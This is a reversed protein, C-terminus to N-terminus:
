NLVFDCNVRLDIENHSVFVVAVDSTKMVQSFFAVAAKAASTDLNSTFEDLCLLRVDSMIAVSIAVAQRQGGSLEGCFSHIRDELGLEFKSLLEKIREDAAARTQDGGFARALESITLDRALLDGAFQNLYVKKLGRQEQIRGSTPELEGCIVKLLTSKGSGNRGSVRVIDGADISLNIGEFIIQQADPYSFSVDELQLLPM